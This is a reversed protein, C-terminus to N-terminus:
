MKSTTTKTKGAGGFMYGLKVNFGSNKISTNPDVSINSLGLTYGTSVFFGGALKYGGLFNVGFDFSKLNFDSANSSNNVEGDFKVDQNTEITTTPFGNGSIESKTEIKGGVGFSFEPGLGIFFKGTGAPINYVFNPSLQIYSLKIEQSGKSTFGATTNNFEEEGGKQIFNLEPRFSISNGFDVDALAGVTFGTNAKTTASSSNLGPESKITAFNAGAQVGFTTQAQTIFGMAAFAATFIVKKM